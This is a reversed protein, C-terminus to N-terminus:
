VHARGIKGSPKHFIKGGDAYCEEVPVNWQKGAAMILMERASAGVNRLETYSSRVSMSGGAFQMPGFRKEGNSQKITVQDLSVELEEAILSPISQFVGQGIEPKTNFLTITGSKEIIIYPTLEFSSLENSLNAVTTVGNNGKVSLGIIFGAGTIGTIKIFNRRNINSAIKQM